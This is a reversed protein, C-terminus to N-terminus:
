GRRVTAEILGYPEDTPVFVENRNEMGFRNLDFSIHHKNPMSLRIESIQECSELAAEAMAYLTHQVSQSKHTAFKELLADRITTRCLGFAAEAVGYLWEAQVVTAFIRDRTEALTTFSDKIYGEFASDSTRLVLLGDIGARITNGERTGTVTATRGEEGNSVFASPHPKSGVSIRSWLHESIHTKVGSLQPNNKLFHSVLRLAFDEIEGIPREGALAYVTNKMTDTPLVKSNDGAIHVADFDGEFQIDVSIDKLEHQQGSRTVRVLRVSSKGYSNSVLEFTM